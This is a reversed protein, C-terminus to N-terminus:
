DVRIKAFVSVIELNLEKKIKKWESKECTFSIIELCIVATRNEINTVVHKSLVDRVKKSEEEHYIKIFYTKM